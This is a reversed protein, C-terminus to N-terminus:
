EGLYIKTIEQEFETMGGSMKKIDLFNISGDKNFFQKGIISQLTEVDNYFYDM